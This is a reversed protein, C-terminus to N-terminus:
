PIQSLIQKWAWKCQQCVWTVATKPSLDRNGQQSDKAGRPWGRGRIHSVADEFCSLSTSTKEQFREPNEKPWWSSFFSEMKLMHSWILGVQIIERDQPWSQWTVYYVYYHPHCPLLRDYECTWLVLPHFRSPIIKLMKNIVSFMLM